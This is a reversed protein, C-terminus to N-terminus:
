GRAAEEERAVREDHEAWAVREIERSFEQTALMTSQMDPVFDCHRCYGDDLRRQCGDDHHLVMLGKSM